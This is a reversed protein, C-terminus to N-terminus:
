AQMRRLTKAAAAQVNHPLPVYDLSAAMKQAADGTLWLFISQLLKGRAADHPKQYLVVWSYGAIPYCGACKSNVISFNGPSVNPKTAAAARVTGASDVVYKGAANELTAETMKNQLAYALEVYGIAGPNNNVQGAVGENGKGGIASAAPWTVSKGTGIKSKWEASINSLYDSFIYTTGSGDARHVVVIPTKPLKMHPNLKTIQPDDWSVVKGLFIGALANRSLRLGSRVGPVNYAISVGGLAVPVQLVPGGGAQAAKIEAANMPVDTAGFDVTRQTFQAIGGGSGISQYNVQVDGHSKAYEFFAKSFFPYDFSSGAGTLQTAAAAPVITAFLAAVALAPVTRLYHRHGSRARLSKRM